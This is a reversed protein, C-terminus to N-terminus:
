YGFFELIQSRFFDFKFTENWNYSLYTANPNVPEIFKTHKMGRYSPILKYLGLVKQQYGSAVWSMGTDATILARCSLMIKVSEFYNCQTREIDSISHDDPGSIHIMKLKLDNHVVGIIDFINHYNIDKEIGWKTFPSIAVYDKYKNDLPFWRNFRIQLDKPPELGHMKCVEETQHYYNYWDLIVHKPMPNYVIDFKSDALYDQDEQTPWNNYGDWLHYDNVLENYFFLPLIEKFKKNIGFTLCSDPYKEKFARCAIMNMCLDGYQGSNFGIATIM